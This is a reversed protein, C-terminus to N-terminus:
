CFKLWICKTMKLDILSELGVLQGM